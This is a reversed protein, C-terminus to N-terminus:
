AMAPPSPTRLRRRTNDIRAMNPPASAPASSSRPKPIRTGRARAATRTATDAKIDVRRRQRVGLSARGVLRAASAVPLAPEDALQLSERAKALIRLKAIPEDHRRRRRKTAFGQARPL